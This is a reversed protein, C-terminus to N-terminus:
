SIRDSRSGRSFLWGNEDSGLARDIEEANPLMRYTDDNNLKATRPDLYQDAESLDSAGFGLFRLVAVLNERNQDLSDTYFEEYERLMRSESPRKLVVRRYCDQLWIQYEMGREVQAIDVPHLSSYAEDRGFRPDWLQWMRTQEAIGGSVVTQLTNRRRLFIVRLDPLLLLHSYIEEPLDYPLVKIGNYLVSLEDLLTDLSAVDTLSDRYTRENAHWQGYKPHFPDLAVRIHPHVSLAKALSSSGSRDHAFIVFQM